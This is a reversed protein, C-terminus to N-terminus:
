SIVPSGGIDFEATNVTSRISKFFRDAGEADSEPVSLGYEVLTGLSQDAELGVLVKLSIDPSAKLSEYLERIGSFYFFGVLFKLEQSASILEQLRKKLTRNSENSIFNQM